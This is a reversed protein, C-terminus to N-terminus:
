KCPIVSGINFVIPPFNSWLTVDDPLTFHSKQIISFIILSIFSSAFSEKGDLEM